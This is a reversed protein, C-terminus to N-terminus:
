SSVRSELFYERKLDIKTMEPKKLRNRSKKLIKGDIKADGKRNKRLKRSKEVCFARRCCLSDMRVAPAHSFIWLKGNGDDDFDYAILTLWM